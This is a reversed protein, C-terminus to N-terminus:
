GGPGAVLIDSASLSRVNLKALDVAVGAGSGDADFSLMGTATNFVFTPVASAPNDLAFNAAPLTGAFVTEFNPSFVLIKDTGAEFDAITDVGEQDSGIWFVDAELGGYLTDSGRNGALTDSGQGGFLLDDGQGGFLTDAAKNGYLVDSGLQGYAVDQDMGGLVTDGDQ